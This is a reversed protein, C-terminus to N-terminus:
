KIPSNKRVIVLATVLLILFYIIWPTTMDIGLLDATKQKGYLSMLQIVAGIAYFAWAGKTRAVIIAVIMFLLMFWFYGLYYFLEYIFFM